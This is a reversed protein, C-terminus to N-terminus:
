IGPGAAQACMDRLSEARTIAASIFVSDPRRAYISMLRSYHRDMMSELEMLRSQDASPDELMFTILSDLARNENRLEPMEAVTDLFDRCYFVITKHYDTLGAM